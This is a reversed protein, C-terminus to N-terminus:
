GGGGGGGGDREWANYLEKYRDVARVTLVLFAEDQTKSLLTGDSMKGCGEGCFLCVSCVRWKFISALITLGLICDSSREHVKVQTFTDMVFAVSNAKSKVATPAAPVGLKALAM